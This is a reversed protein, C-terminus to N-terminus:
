KQIMLSETGLMFPFMRRQSASGSIACVSKLQKSCRDPQPTLEKDPISKSICSVKYNAENIDEEEEWFTDDNDQEQVVVGRNMDLNTIERLAPAARASPETEQNNLKRKGM